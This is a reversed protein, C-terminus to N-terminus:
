SVIASPRAPTLMRILLQLCDTESLLGILRGGDIVPLCGIRHALMVEVAQLISWDPAATVVDRTMVEAVSIRELWEREASYRFHLASSLAARFLDRQSFIGVVHEGSVVPMHRVRTLNMLDSALHLHDAANLTVLETKMLDRVTETGNTM